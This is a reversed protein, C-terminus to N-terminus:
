WSRGGEPGSGPGAPATAQTAPPGSVAAPSGPSTEARRELMWSGAISASYAALNAVFAVSVEVSLTWPIVTGDSPWTKLMVLWWAVLVGAVVLTIPERTWVRLARGMWHWLLPLLYISYYLHSVPLLLILCALAHWFVLPSRSDARRLALVALGVVFVALGVTAAVRLGVSNAIPVVGAESFWLKPMGWVSYSIQHQSGASTIHGVARELGTLGGFVASLALSAAGVGAAVAIRRWRGDPRRGLATALALVPWLKVSAAVAALSTSRGRWRYAGALGAVSFLALVFVDIQGVQLEITMPWFLFGTAVCATFLVPRQWPQLGHWEFLTVCCGAVAVAALGGAAWYLVMTHLSVHSFPTLLMALLPTYVYGKSPSVVLYPSHGGAVEQAARLYIELDVPRSRSLILQHVLKAILATGALAALWLVVTLARPSAPGASPDTGVSELEPDPPLEPAAGRDVDLDVDVPVAADFPAPARRM